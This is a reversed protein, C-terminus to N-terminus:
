VPSTFTDSYACLSLISLISPYGFQFPVAERSLLQPVTSLSAQMSYSVSEFADRTQGASLTIYSISSVAAGAVLISVIVIIRWRNVRETEVASYILMQEHEGIDGNGNPDYRNDTNTSSSHLVPNSLNSSVVSSDDGDEDDDDVNYPRRNGDM